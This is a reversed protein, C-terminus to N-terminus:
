FIQEYKKYDAASFHIDGQRQPLFTIPQNYYPFENKLIEILKLLTTSTGHAINYVDGPQITAIRSALLLNAEVIHDVHTFHRTQTGDGFVTISQNTRMLHKFLAVVSAYPGTIDQREGYVNFYRLRVTKLKHLHAYQVCYHEALLKSYGYPSQPSTTMDEHCLEKKDGYVASSSSFIVAEINHIKSAELVSLTGTVNTTHYELPILYSEPVSVRAACHFVISHGKIIPLITDFDTISSKHFTIDHKISDLNELRGSSLDDIITVQAGYNVLAQAIHSGIFGAGGTVVVSRDKYYNTYTHKM